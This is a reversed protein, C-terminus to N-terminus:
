ATTANAWLESFAARVERGRPEELVTFSSLKKDGLSNLSTGLQYWSNDISFYRDHLQSSRRAELNGYETCYRKLAPGFDPDQAKEFLYFISPKAIETAAACLALWEVSAYPDIIIIEKTATTILVRIKQYASFQHRPHVLSFGTCAPSELYDLGKKTIYYGRQKLEINRVLDEEVLCSAVYTLKDETIGLISALGELDTSIFKYQEPVEQRVTKLATLLSWSIDNDTIDQEALHDLTTSSVKQVYDRGVEYGLDIRARARKAVLDLFYNVWDREPERMILMQAATGSISIAETFLREDKGHQHVAVYYAKGDRIGRPERGEYLDYKRYPAINIM